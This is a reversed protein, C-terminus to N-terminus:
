NIRGCFLMTWGVLSNLWVYLHARTWVVPVVAEEGLGMMMGDIEAGKGLVAKDNGQRQSQLAQQQQQRVIELKTGLNENYVQAFQTYLSLSAQFALRRDKKAGMDGMIRVVDEQSAFAIVLEGLAELRGRVHAPLPLAAESSDGLMHSDPSAMVAEMWDSLAQLATWVSEPSRPKKTNIVRTLVFLIDQELAERGSPM